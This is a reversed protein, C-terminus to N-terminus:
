EEPDSESESWEDLVDQPQVSASESREVFVIYGPPQFNEPDYLIAYVTQDSTRIAWQKVDEYELERHKPSIGPIYVVTGDKPRRFWRKMKVKDGLQVEIGTGKYYLGSSPLASNTM